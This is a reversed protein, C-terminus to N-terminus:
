HCLMHM